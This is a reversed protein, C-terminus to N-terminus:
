IKRTKDQQDRDGAGGKRNQAARRGARGAKGERSKQLLLRAMTLDRTERGETFWDYAPALVKVADDPRDQSSWLRGLAIASRLKLSYLKMAEAAELGGRLWRESEEARDEGRAAASQLTLEGFLRRIEPEYYREGCKRVIGIADELLALGEDPRGALALGEAQLALYFPTTVVAGTASWMGYAARMEKLGAAPDGLEAVLRGRVLKAHALWVAFGHDECIQIAREADALAAENEGRFHHVVARFGHAEGMSFRHDLSTSLKVVREARKLADDPYGLEWKGWSSYCLCMVGVDQVADPHHQSPDYAGLCADMREVASALEGQHFLINAVAWQSQLRRMVDPSRALRDAVAGAIGHAREFNARMFHYGELGLQVKVLASEDGVKRCLDSARAYVREVQDAGYGETAILRGALLLQFRLETRDRDPADPLRAVLALGNKLHSIAEYDASRSAARRAAREWYAIAQPEIGAETYHYALLEPQSEELDGFKEALVTAIARHLRKRDREWLSQYAADRVLAHKFFYSTNPPAGKEILLGANVLAGLRVGADAIQVPSSEHALVAELLALSFERGISGGLQAVPKASEMRDLRAMLLDQITAPVASALISASDAGHSDAGLEVAMRASEEIFLPVGDARAALLRVIDGPLKADGCAGIVMARSYEPSLGKLEIGHVPFGPSWQHSEEQRLTVILMLPVRAAQGVLGNLFERTSPDLWHVDEVILCLPTRETERKIWNTLTVLTLERQKEASLQLKPYRSEFPISLLAAILAAAGAVNSQPLLSADIKDLKAEIDDSDRIQLLRRLFDIIPHFASNRHDPECRCEIARYGRALLSHRFERVLRSKGIGAEGTLQVSRVGGLRAMSWHEEILELERERGIFPTLRPSADFPDAADVRDEGVFRYVPGPDDFGKFDQTEDIQRFSFRGRVLQRTRDSLRISGPEAMAQLRTAFHVASGVPRGDSVAVQGSDIGIRVAIGLEAVAEVIKRGARLSQAAGDEHAVPFGFFCLVGDGKPDEMSGGHRAVIGECRNWYRALVESYKEAGLSKLLRTSDVMDCSMITVQRRNDRQRPLAERPFAVHLADGYLAADTVLAAGARAQQISAARACRVSEALAAGQALERYVREMFGPDGEGAAHPGRMLINLGLGAAAAALRAETGDPPRAAGRKACFESVLLQPPSALAAADRMRVAEAGPWWYDQGAGRAAGRPPGFYHVVDSEAFLRLAQSRLLGGANMQTASVGEIVALRQALRARYADCAPPIAEGRILLVKLADRRPREAAAGEVRTATSIRRAVAFKEGLFNEGDFALEWPIGALAADIQLYLCHAASRVLAARVADPFLRAFILSGLRQTRRLADDGPVARAGASGPQQADKMRANLENRLAASLGVRAPRGIPLVDTLWVSLAAGDRLITVVLQRSDASAV